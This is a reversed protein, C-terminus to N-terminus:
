DMIIEEFQDDKDEDEEEEMGVVENHGVENDETMLKRNEEDDIDDSDVIITSNNDSKMKINNSNKSKVTSVNTDGISSTGDLITDDDKYMNSQPDFFLNVRGLSGDFRNKKVDLFKEEKMRQLILVNDAEQTAKAAGFISSMNLLTDDDEKRPHIVLTIHVNNATAFKRFKELANEQAEFKGFNNRSNNGQGSLMFQLNDLIVHEVDYAYVAYEMADLVEDVETSGYFRMFYLPLNEFREAAADFHEQPLGDLEYGVLQTLMKKILRTNKIEFSGWLTNTNDQCLDISMQSLLTTKGSGTSGTLVTLEGPRHGKIIRNLAPLTQFQKGVVQDPNQLENRIEQRLEHFTLIEKHPIPKANEILKRLDLGQRLADNADKPSDHDNVLVCRSEGLKKAFKEAGERGPLDNDMWLYVKEFRELLPLIEVPLSQCGNPLSVAPVGTAQYVAMADYEGETLVISRAQDPVTHWGFLGWGGGAPLLRQMHKHDLGRAKIRTFELKSGGKGSGDASKYEGVNKIWPFTVCTYKKWLSKTNKSNNNNDNNDVKYDPDPFNFDAAGVCYERLVDVNIGREKTLYNLVEPHQNNEILNITYQSVEEQNPLKKQQDNIPVNPGSFLPGSHQNNNKRYNNSNNNNNGNNNYNGYRRNNNNNNNKQGGGGGGSTIGLKSKFDFWSGKSGCRHCFYAGDGRKIYLKWLNDMKGKTPSCFPCNCAIIHDSTTKSNINQRKLVNVIDSDKVEYYSSVFTGSNNNYNNNNRNKNYYSNNNNNNNNNNNRYAASSFFCKTQFSVINSILSPTTKLKNHNKFYAKNNDNNTNNSIYHYQALLIKANNNYNNINHSIRKTYKNTTAFRNSKFIARKFM